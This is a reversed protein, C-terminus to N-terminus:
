KQELMLFLAQQALLIRPKIHKVMNDLFEKKAHLIEANARTKKALSASYSREFIQMDTFADNFQEIVAAYELVEEPFTLGPYHCAEGWAQLSFDSSIFQRQDIVYFRELNDNIEHWVNLLIKSKRGPRSFFKLLSSLM